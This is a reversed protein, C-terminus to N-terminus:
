DLVKSEVHKRKRGLALAGAGLGLLGITAPEPVITMQPLYISGSTVRIPLQSVDGRIGNFEIDKSFYFNDDTDFSLNGTIDNYVAIGDGDVDEITWVDDPRSGEGITELYRGYMKGPYTSSGNEAYGVVVADGGVYNIFGMHWHSGAEVISDILTIPDRVMLNTGSPMGVSVIPVSSDALDYFNDIPVLTAEAKPSCALTALGIATGFALTRAGNKVKDVLNKM